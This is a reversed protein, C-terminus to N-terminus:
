MQIEVVDQAPERDVAVPERRHTGIRAATPSFTRTRYMFSPIM